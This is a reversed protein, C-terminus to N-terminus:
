WRSACPGCVTSGNWRGHKVVQRGGSGGRMPEPVGSDWRQDCDPVAGNTDFDSEYTFVRGLVIVVAFPSGSLPTGYEKELEVRAQAVAKSDTDDGNSATPAGAAQQQANYALQSSAVSDRSGPSDCYTDIPPLDM